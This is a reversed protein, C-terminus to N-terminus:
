NERSTFIEDVRFLVCKFPLTRITSPTLTKESVEICFKRIPSEPYKSVKDVKKSIGKGEISTLTSSIYHNDDKM